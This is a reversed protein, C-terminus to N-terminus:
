GPAKRRHIKSITGTGTRTTFSARGEGQADFLQALVGQPLCQLELLGRDADLRPISALQGYLVSSFRQLPLRAEHVGTGM